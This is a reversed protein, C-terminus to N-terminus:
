FKKCIKFVAHLGNDRLNHVVCLGNSDLCPCPGLFDSMIPIVEVVCSAGPSTFYNQSQCECPLADYYIEITFGVLHM